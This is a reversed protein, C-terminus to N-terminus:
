APAVQEGGTAPRPNYVRPRRGLRLLLWILTIGLILYLLFFAILLPMIGPAPTVADRTRMVGYIIWPQRGAETTIWGAEMATFGMFGSATLALLLLRNQLRRWRQAAWYWLSIGILATGLGIMTQFAMRVLLVNPRDEKPFDNLGKVEANIDHKALLSLAKPIEIAYKLRQEEDDPIGGISLPAGRQTEYLGEMAALKSPQYQTTFRANLDGSLPQILACPTGVILALKLATRNYEDRRGRLIAFAYVSAIAFSCAIFNSLTSHLSFAAWGTNFLADVVNVNIPQGDPGLDFGSPKQMWANASIILIGSYTGAVLTAVGCLWHTRPKLRDWGYLYLGLFIAELFFGYGELMFAAGTIGGAFAMFRPWLLGMEFSLATGSVAGIAFLLGTVKSWKKAMELYMPKRKRLWLGEAIVMFLPMGIGIAAFIMHFALSMGMQARAAVLESM